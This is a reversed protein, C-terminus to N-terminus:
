AKEGAFVRAVASNIMRGSGGYFFHLFEMGRNFCSRLEILLWFRWGCFTFFEGFFVLGEFATKFVGKSFVVFYAEM